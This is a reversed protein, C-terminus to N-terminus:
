FTDVHETLHKYYKTNAILFVTFAIISVGMDVLLLHADIELVRIFNM